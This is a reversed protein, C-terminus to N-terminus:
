NQLDYKDLKYIVPEDFYFYTRALLNIDISVAKMREQM